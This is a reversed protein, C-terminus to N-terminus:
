SCQLNSPIRPHLLWGLSSLRRVKFTSFHNCNHTKNSVNELECGNNNLFKYLFNSKVIM